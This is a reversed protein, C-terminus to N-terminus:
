HVSYKRGFQDSANKLHEHYRGSLAGRLQWWSSWGVGDPGPIHRLRNWRQVLRIAHIAFLIAIVQLVTEMLSQDAPLVM